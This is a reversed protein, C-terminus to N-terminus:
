DRNDTVKFTFTDNGSVDANATYTFSGTSLDDIVATGKVGNTVISYTIPETDPRRASRTRSRRAQRSRFATTRHWPRITRRPRRSRHSRPTGASTMHSWWRWRVGTM